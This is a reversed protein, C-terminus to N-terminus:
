RGRIELDEHRFPSTEWAKNRTQKEQKLREAKAELQEKEAQIQEWEAKLITMRKHNDVLFYGGLGLLIVFAAIFVYALKGLLEFYEKIIGKITKM